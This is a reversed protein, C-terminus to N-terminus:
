PWSPGRHWGCGDLGGVKVAESAEAAVRAAKATLEAGETVADEAAAVM